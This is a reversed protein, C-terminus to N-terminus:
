HCNADNDGLVTFDYLSIGYQTARHYSLVRVYRGTADLPIRQVHATIGAGEFGPTNWTSNDNSTQVIFDTSTAREWSLNVGSVHRVQGLDVTIWQGDAFASSWRTSLSADIANSAPFAAQEVSSATASVRTLPVSQCSTQATGTIQFSDLSLIGAGPQEESSGLLCLEHVGTIPSLGLTATQFDNAGATKHVTYTGIASGTPGDMSATILGYDLTASYRLSLATAGTLDVGTYCRYSGPTFAVAGNTVTTGRNSDSEEAEIKTGVGAQTIQNAVAWIDFLFRPAQCNATCAYANYGRFRWQYTNGGVFTVSQESIKYVSPGPDMYVPTGGPGPLFERVRIVLGTYETPSPVFQTNPSYESRAFFSTLTQTPPLTFTGTYYQDSPATTGSVLQGNGVIEATVARDGALAQATSAAVDAETGNEPAGSCGSLLVLMSGLAWSWKVQNM